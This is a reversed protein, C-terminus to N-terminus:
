GAALGAPERALTEALRDLVALTTANGPRELGALSTVPAGLDDLRRRLGGATLDAARLLRAVGLRAAERANLRQEATAEPLLLLPKGLHITESILQHGATALVARCGALDEVFGAEDFPRYSVAGATGVGGSGYLRVPSGVGALARLLRPNALCHNDFYVLLHDGQHPRARLIRERLIPPVLHVGPRARPPSFFSSVM